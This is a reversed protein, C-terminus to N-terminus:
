DRFRLENVASGVCIGQDFGFEIASRYHIGGYLRSLAAEDAADFFSSFSRAPLRPEHTRDTFAVEGFMATMVHAAAASQVSHGSTYEPFPPTTVMPQWTSDIAAQIYTVPRLLNYHFKANWCSIFADAVAMGVRAYGEAAEDLSHEDRELIQTLISLSHGPPTSTLGPDDSWFLAIARQDETLTTSTEYVEMGELFFPSAPDESYTPHPGAGCADGAALVFPRNEGWYPQMARQFGPPTPVWLGPGVPPVYDAPFNRLYGEHGGDTRSWSFVADAISRGYAASRTAVDSGVAALAEAEWEGELQDIALKNADTATPFLHRLITACAANAAAPWHYAQAPDVVPLSGLGALQGSLSRFGPMGPRVAEYLAVGTYGLARSAVPPSFGSTGKVLDLALRYWDTAVDASFAEAPPSADGGGGDGCGAVIALCVALCLVLRRSGLALRSM